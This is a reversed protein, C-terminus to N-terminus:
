EDQKMKWFPTNEIIEKQIWIESVSLDQLKNVNNKQMKYTM